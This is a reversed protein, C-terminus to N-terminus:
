LDILAKELAILGPLLEPRSLDQMSYLLYGMEGSFYTSASVSHGAIRVQVAQSAATRTPAEATQKGNRRITVGREISFTVAVVMDVGLATGAGDSTTGSARGASTSVGATGLIVAGVGNISGLNSGILVRSAGEDARVRAVVTFADPNNSAAEGAALNFTGPLLIRGNVVSVVGSGGNVNWPMADPQRRDQIASGDPAILTALPSLWYDVLPRGEADSLNAILRDIDTVEPVVVSGYRAALAPQPKVARRFTHM